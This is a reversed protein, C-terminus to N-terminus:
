CFKTVMVRSYQLCLRVRRGQFYTRSLDLQIFSQIEYSFLYVIELKEFLEYAKWKQCFHWALISKGAGPAGEIIIVNRAEGNTHLSASIQELTVESTSSMVKTVAGKLM